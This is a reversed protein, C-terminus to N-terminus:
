INDKLCCCSSQDCLYHLLGYWPHIAALAPLTNHNSPLQGVSVTQGQGVGAILATNQWGWFQYYIWQLATKPLTCFFISVSRLLHFCNGLSHIKASLRHHTSSCKATILLFFNAHWIFLWKQRHSCYIQTIFHIWILACLFFITVFLARVGHLM